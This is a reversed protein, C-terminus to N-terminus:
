DYIRIINGNADLEIFKSVRGEYFDKCQNQLLNDEQSRPNHVLDVAYRNVTGLCQSSLVKDSEKEKQHLELALSVAQQQRLVEPPTTSPAGQQIWVGRKDKIWRDGPFFSLLFVVGLILIVGLLIAIVSVSLAKKM